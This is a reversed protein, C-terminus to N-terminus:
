KAAFSALAESEDEFIDFVQALHTIHLLANVRPQLRELRLVGGQRTMTSYVEVCQSLGLSDIQPVDELNLLLHRHYEALLRRVTRVLQQEAASEATLRGHVDVITVAGVHRVSLEVVEAARM